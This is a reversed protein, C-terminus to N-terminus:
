VPIETNVTAPIPAQRVVVRHKGTATLPIEAVFQMDFEVSPGIGRRIEAELQSRDALTFGTDVVLRLLIRRADEQYVQYRRVSPYDKILHVFFEGSIKRGDPTDLVDLQRGAIGNLLPLGRGCSCSSFGAIARDGNVYRIFPMGYNFLDTIVVNGVEGARTPQGDDDLIEVILNEQSLHLGSHRDCEAGILMFERSGYTEFVPAGFVREITERQFTHLKEAGVVLSRPRHPTIGREELFRAFEYLPNTYAVIVEPRYRNMRIAHSAMNEPTFDFCSLVMQRDFARHLNAKVRKWYPVNGLATGWIHLQKTGPAAGAWGYGRYTMAVRRDNSDANLDFHLPEGTSGGTSKSLNLMPQTSRLLHRNARVTSRNLLPLAALDGLSEVQGPTLGLRTFERCYFPCTAVAHALLARVSRVQFDELREPSWWQSEEASAWYRLTKRGKLGGDFLPLLVNRYILGYM